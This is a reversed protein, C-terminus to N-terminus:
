SASPNAQGDPRRSLTLWRRRPNVTHVERIQPYRAQVSRLVLDNLTKGSAACGHCAGGFQVTLIGDRVSHATVDGGHSDAVPAVEQRLLDAIKHLLEDDTLGADSGSVTLAEFLASRVRPGDVAWARSAALWTLVEGPATSVRELLGEDLLAQLQPPTTPLVRTGISWKVLRPDDTTEPHLTPIM